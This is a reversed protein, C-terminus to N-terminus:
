RAPPTWRQPAEGDWQLWRDTAEAEDPPAATQFSFAPGRVREGSLAAQPGAGAWLWGGPEPAPTALLAALERDLTALATATHELTLDTAREHIELWAPGGAARLTGSRWGEPVSPGARVQFRGGAAPDADDPAAGTLVLMVRWQAGEEACYGAWDAAWAGDAGRCRRWAVLDEQWRGVRWRADAELAARLRALRDADLGALTPLAAEVTFIEQSAALARLDTAGGLGRRAPPPPLTTPWPATAPTRMPEAAEPTVVAAEPPPPAPKPCGALLVLLTPARM